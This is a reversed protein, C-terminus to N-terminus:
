KFRNFALARRRRRRRRVFFIVAALILALLILPWVLLPITQVTTIRAPPSNYYAIIRPNGDPGKPQNSAYETVAQWVKFESGGRYIIRDDLEVPNGNKDKMVLGLSPLMEGVMPLFTALYYDAVVHYLKEDGRLIPEYSEQSQIGDGTFREAKIVARTSPLPIKKVPVWMIIARSRDYAMRLGSYQLFYSDGFIESLLVSVELIRRIEEGTFYISVMANGPEGDPGVGLGILSVMDFFSIEGRSFAMVGPELSGRIVGNAQIAFDVKEGTVDEAMLRMADTVFSAFPNSVDTPRDSLSFDSYVVRDSITSYRGGSLNQILGNLEDTFGAVLESMAPDSAVKHDLPLLYPRKYQENRISLRGSAPNYSLELVGLYNLRDGTQVIITNGEFVPQELATHCHGGVIIDIGPVARALELDEAVGSHTIAVIVDAGAKQLQEVMERATEHQDSFVVPGTLSADQLARKGILGFFGITLGNNLKKVFTNQLGRQSLPHDAPPQTNSAVIATRAAAGPYGAAQLYSALVEPGYDYEHNGITIVDYGLELMLTLEPASGHLALWSYPSGGLYDGASLLLVPEGTQAKEQRIGAVAHALRAFGGLSPNEYGPLYDVLPSPLLASHEDNTHLITFNIDSSGAASLPQIGGAGVLLALILLLAVARDFLGKNVRTFLM